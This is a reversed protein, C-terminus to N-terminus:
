KLSPQLTDIMDNIFYKMYDNKLDQEYYHTIYTTIYKCDHLCAEDFKIDDDIFSFYQQYMYYRIENMYGSNEFLNFIFLKTTYNDDCNIFSNIIFEYNFEEDASKSDYMYIIFKELIEALMTNIDEQNMINIPKM